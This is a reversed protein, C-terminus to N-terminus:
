LVGELVRPTGVFPVFKDDVKELFEHWDTAEWCLEGDEVFWNEFVLEFWDASSSADIMPLWEDLDEGSAYSRMAEDAEDENDFFIFTISEFIDEGTYFDARIGFFISDPHEELIKPDHYRM